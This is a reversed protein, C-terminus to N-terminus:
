DPDHGFPSVGNYHQCLLTSLQQADLLELADVLYCLIDEASGDTHSRFDLADRAHLLPIKQLSRAFEMPLDSLKVRQSSRHKIRAKTVMHGAKQRIQNENLIAHEPMGEVENM